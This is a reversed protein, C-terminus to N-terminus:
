FVACCSPPLSSTLTGTFPWVVQPHQQANQLSFSLSLLTPFPSVSTLREKFNFPLIIDNIITTIEMAQIGIYAMKFDSNKYSYIIFYVYKVFVSIV